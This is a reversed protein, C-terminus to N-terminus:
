IFQSNSLDLLENTIKEQRSKNYSLTLFDAIDLANNKANQMALMRSAQESTYTEIIRNYLLVELYYPLLWSVITAIDPEFLYPLTNTDYNDKELSVPLIQELKPTQTFLSVFEPYLLEVTGVEGKQYYTDITNILPYVVSYHPLSTGMPFTAVLQRTVSGISREIKKGVTIVLTDKDHAEFFRRLLNTVLSGCLGKDPALIVLLKKQSQNEKLYPHTFTERDINNLVNKTQTIIKQAYPKNNEVASQARKIKSAAVMEMARAVQAINNATKIRRKLVQLNHAM